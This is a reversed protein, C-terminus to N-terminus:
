PHTPARRGLEAAEPRVLDASSRQVVTVAGSWGAPAGPRRLHRRYWALVSDVFLRCSRGLLDRDYALRARLEFPVTLVFQRLPVPPLVHELLNLSTQAMGRGLCRPCFARGKCCFSVLRREDCRDCALLAFGRCLLGCDLYRELERRVFEPLSAGTFGQEAAAYLTRLNERVVQHLTGHEPRARGDGYAPPAAARGERAPRRSTGSPSARSSAM